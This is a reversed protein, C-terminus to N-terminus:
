LIKESLYHIDNIISGKSVKINHGEMVPSDVIGTIQIEGHNTINGNFIGYINLSCEPDIIIDGKHIGYLNLKANDYLHITGTSIGSIDLESNIIDIDKNIVGNMKKEKGM